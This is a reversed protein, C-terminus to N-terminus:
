SETSEETGVSPEARSKSASAPLAALDSPSRLSTWHHRIRSCVLAMFVAIFFALIRNTPLIHSCGVETLVGLFTMRHLRLQQDYQFHLEM